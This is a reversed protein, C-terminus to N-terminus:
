KKLISSIEYFVIRSGQSIALQNGDPHMAIGPSQQLGQFTHLKQLTNVDWLEVGNSMTSIMLYKWDPSHSFRLFLDTGKISRRRVETVKGNDEKLEIFHINRGTRGVLLNPERYVLQFFGFEDKVPIKSMLELKQDYFYLSENDSTVIRDATPNFATGTVQGAHGKIERPPVDLNLMWIRAAQDGHGTLVAQGDPSFTAGWLSTGEPGGRSRVLSGSRSPKNVWLFGGHHTIAVTSGDPSFFAGSRSPREPKESVYLRTPVKQIPSYSWLTDESDVYYLATGDPKWCLELAYGAKLDLTFQSKAGPPLPLEAPPPPEVKPMVIPAQKQVIPPPIPKEPERNLLFVLGIALFTLGAIGGGLAWYLRGSGAPEEEPFRRKSPPREADIDVLVPLEEEATFIARCRPCRL